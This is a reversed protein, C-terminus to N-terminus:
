EINQTQERIKEVREKGRLVLQIVPLNPVKSSITNLERNVEQLMFDIKKGVPEHERTVKALEAVHAKLRVIEENIDGKGVPSATENPDRERIAGNQAPVTADKQTRVVAEAWSELEHAVQKVHSIQSEMDVRLQRGERERSRELKTLASGLAKLVADREGVHDAEVERIHFLEPVQTLSSLGLEGALRYKRKLQKLSAIYQGVLGDNIELKKGQPKTGYRNIFLDIRGRAIKERVAKRIMEEFSLYERPVRLQLDLHRHNLSRIQVTVKAGSVNQSAEGYGTMSKM